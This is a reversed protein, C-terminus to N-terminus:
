GQIGQPVQLHARLRTSPPSPTQRFPSPSSKRETPPTTPYGWYRPQNKTYAITGSSNRHLTPLRPALRVTICYGFPGAPAECFHPFRIQDPRESKFRPGGSGWSIPRPTLYSDRSDWIQGSRRFRQDSAKRALSNDGLETSNDVLKKARTLFHPRGRRRVSSALWSVAVVPERRRRV